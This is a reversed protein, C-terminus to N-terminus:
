HLGEDVRSLGMDIISVRGTKADFMVNHTHMDNHAVGTRHLKGRAQILKDFAQAKVKPTMGDRLQSIVTSGPMTEILITGKRTPINFTGKTAKAETYAEGLLRPTVGSSSAAKLAKVEGPTIFGRKAVGQSTLKATGYAGRGLVKDSADFLKNPDLGSKEVIAEVKLKRVVPKAAVDLARNLEPTPFASRRSQRPLRPKLM